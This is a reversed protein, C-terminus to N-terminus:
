EKKKIKSRKKHVTGLLERTMDTIANQLGVEVRFKEKEDFQTKKEKTLFELQPLPVIISIM